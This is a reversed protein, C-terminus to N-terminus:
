PHPFVNTNNKVNSSDLPPAMKFHNCSKDSDAQLAVSSSPHRFCFVSSIQEVFEDFMMRKVSRKKPPILGGPKPKFRTVTEAKHGIFEQCPKPKLAKEPRANAVGVQQDGPNLKMLM